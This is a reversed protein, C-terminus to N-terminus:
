GKPLNLRRPEVSELDFGLAAVESLAASAIADWNGYDGYAGCLWINNVIDRVTSDLLGDVTKNQWNRAACLLLNSHREKQKKTM